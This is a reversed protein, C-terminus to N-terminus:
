SQRRVVRYVSRRVRDFWDRADQPMKNSDLWELLEAKLLPFVNEFRKRRAAKNAAADLMSNPANAVSMQGNTQPAMRRVTPATKISTLPGFRSRHGPIFKKVTNFHWVARRMELAVDRKRVNEHISLLAIAVYVFKVSRGERFPRLVTSSSASSCAELKAESEETFLSSSRRKTRYYERM